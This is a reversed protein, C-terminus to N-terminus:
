MEGMPYRARASVSSLISGGILGKSGAAFLGAKQLSSSIYKFSYVKKKGEKRERRRQEKKSLGMQPGLTGKRQTETKTSSQRNEKHRVQLIAAPVKLGRLSRGSPKMAAMTTLKNYTSRAGEPM